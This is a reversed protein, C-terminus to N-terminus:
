FVLFFCPVILTLCTVLSGHFGNSIVPMGYNGLVNLKMELSSILVWIEIKLDNEDKVECNIENEQSISMKLMWNYAMYVVIM